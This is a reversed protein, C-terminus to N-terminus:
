INADSERSHKRLRIFMLLSFVSSVGVAFLSAIAAGKLGWTPTIIFSIVISITFSILATAINVKQFGLLVNINGIPTRMCMIFFQVVSFCLLIPIFDDLEVIESYGLFDFIPSILAVLVLTTILWLTFCVLFIKKILRTLRAPNNRLTIIKPSYTSIITIPLFSFGFFLASLVRYYALEINSVLYALVLTDIYIVAQSLVNIKSNQLMYTLDGHKIYRGMRKLSSNVEKFSVLLSFIFCACTSLCLAIYDSTFIAAVTFCCSYIICLVIVNRSFRADNNLIRYVNLFSFSFIQFFYSCVCISLFYLEEDNSSYICYVIICAAVSLYTLIATTNLSVFRRLRVSVYQSSFCIKYQSELISLTMFPLLIQIVVMWKSILGYEYPSVIKIIYFQIFIITLKSIINATFVLLREDLRM